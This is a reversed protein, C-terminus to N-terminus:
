IMKDTQKAIAIMFTFEIIMMPGLAISYYVSACLTRIMIMLITILVINENKSKTAKNKCVDNVWISTAIIPIVGLLASVIREIAVAYILCCIETVLGAMSILMFRLTPIPAKRNNLM